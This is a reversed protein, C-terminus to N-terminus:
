DNRENTNKWPAVWEANPDSGDSSRKDVRKAAKAEASPAPNARWAKGSIWASFKRWEASFREQGPAWVASDLWRRMGPEMRPSDAETVDGKDTLSMLVQFAFDPDTCNPHLDRCREFAQMLAPTVGCDEVPPPNGVMGRREGGGTFKRAEPQPQADTAESTPTLEVQPRGQLKKVRRREAATTGGKSNGALRSLAVEREEEVRGQILEGPLDPHDKYCPKLAMWIRETTEVDQNRLLRGLMRLDAPISGNVWQTMILLFYAGLEDLTMAQVNRDALFEYIYLPMWEPVDRQSM